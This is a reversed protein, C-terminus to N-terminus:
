RPTSPHHALTELVASTKSSQETSLPLNKKNLLQQLQAYKSQTEDPGVKSSIEVINGATTEWLELALGRFPSQTASKWSTVQINAVKTVRAWDISIRAKQLLKKQPPSLLKFIDSGTEPVQQMQYKRKVSYDTDEGAGTRNIECPFHGRFQSADFQTNGDPVRIKVTLDNSAGQRIRVIVGQKLLDLQDTDFFYVRGATQKEFRLSTIVAQITPPSLLLKVEVSCKEEAHL